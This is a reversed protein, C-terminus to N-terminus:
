IRKKTRELWKLLPSLFLIYLAPSISDGQRVGATTQVKESFGYATDFQTFNGTILEMIINIDEGSLGYAELTEKMSWHEVSDYAKAVDLFVTHIKRGTM